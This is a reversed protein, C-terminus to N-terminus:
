QPLTTAPRQNRPKITNKINSSKPLSGYPSVVPEPLFNSLVCCQKYRDCMFMTQEKKHCYLRCHGDGPCVGEPPRSGARGGARQPAQPYSEFDELSLKLEARIEPAMQALFGLAALVLLPLKM